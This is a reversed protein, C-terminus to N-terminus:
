HRSSKKKGESLLPLPLYDRELIMWQHLAAKLELEVAAAEPKGALNNLENPDKVLDYVEFLPRPAGKYFPVLSAPVKGEEAAKVVSQWAPGGNFDVPLYPLQFQANYILKHTKTVVVRGLDFGSSNGPLASGHAGREAFVAARGTFKEGRLLPVFGRGTWDAPTELGAAQLATPGIDEGSFLESTAGGPKVVGPWRVLLPVHIGFEYLTGKGRLLAAGNDGMFMVLTNGALGRRELEAMAKGFAEDMRSVEDYYDALDRRVEPTDPFWVPLKLQAPDRRPPPINIGDWPRHPDSTCLQLFFPKGSPVLDLFEQFQGLVAANFSMKEPLKEVTKVYDLRRAFTKLNHTEYVEASAKLSPNGDLHYTRGAVGTFYGAQRLLEPYTVVDMPLPATFRTMGIRVPSRGTMISARSPVCQPSAVYARDFRMGQAAFADLNPTNIDPNNYCGLHPVSQDDSLFVLINPREAANVVAALALVVALVLGPLIRRPTAKM